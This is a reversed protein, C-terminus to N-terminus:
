TNAIPLSVSALTLMLSPRYGVGSMGDYLHWIVDETNCVFHM